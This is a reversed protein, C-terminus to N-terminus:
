PAVGRASEGRASEEEYVLRLMSKLDSTPLLAPNHLWELTIFIEPLAGASRLTRTPRSVDASLYLGSAQAAVALHKHGRERLEATDLPFEVPYRLSLALGGGEENQVSSLRCTCGRTASLLRAETLLCLMLIELLPPRHCSVQSAAHFAEHSAEHSAAHSAADPSAPTATPFVSASAREDSEFEVACGVFDALRLLGKELERRYILGDGGVPFIGDSLYGCVAGWADSLAGYAAMDRATVQAGERRVRATVEFLGSEPDGLVGSNILRACSTGEAHVHLFIGVGAYRDYWRILIGLGLKTMVFVPMRDDGSGSELFSLVEGSLELVEALSGGVPLVAQDPSRTYLIESTDSDMRFVAFSVHRFAEAMDGRPDNWAKKAHTYNM